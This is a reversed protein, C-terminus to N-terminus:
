RRNGPGAGLKAGHPELPRYEAGALHHEVVTQEAARNDVLAVGMRIAEKKRPGYPQCGTEAHDIDKSLLRAARSGFHGAGIVFIASEPIGELIDNHSLDTM